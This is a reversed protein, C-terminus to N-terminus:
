LKLGYTVSLAHALGNYHAPLPPFSSNRGTFIIAQYGLDVQQSEGFLFSGGAAINFRDSDPIDPSLTQQPAPSEDYIVGARIQWHPNLSYEAGLRYQFSHSWQKPQRDLLAEDEPFEITIDRFRQWGFYVLDFDILLKSWPRYAIGVGFQDPLAFKAFVPQDRLTGQLSPDNINTFDARGDIALEFTSRYFAGFTLVEPIASVQIGLNGGLAWDGGGVRIGGTQAGPLALDRSLEVTGRAVQLGVAIRVWEDRFALTPNVIYTKFAAESVINRGPFGAPYDFTLGYPVFFGLGVTVQDTLGYAAYVHPLPVVGVNPSTETGAVPTVNFKPALLTAGLRVDLGKGQAIGAPNFFIGSADNVHGTVAMAMGLARASHVDLALGAADAKGSSASIGLIAVASLWKKM